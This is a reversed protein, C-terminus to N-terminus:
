GGRVIAISPEYILVDGLEDCLVRDAVIRSALLIADCRSGLLSGLLIDGIVM